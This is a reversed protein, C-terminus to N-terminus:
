FSYHPMLCSHPMSFPHPMSCPILGVMYEQLLESIYFGEGLAFYSPYEVGDELNPLKSIHKTSVMKKYIIIFMVYIQIDRTISISDM